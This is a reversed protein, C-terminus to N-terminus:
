GGACQRDAREPAPRRSPHPHPWAALTDPCERSDPRDPGGEATRPAAGPRRRLRTPAGPPTPKHQHRGTEPLAAAKGCRGPRSPAHCNRRGISGPHGHRVSFRPRLGGARLLRLCPRSAPSVNHAPAIESRLGCLSGRARTQKHVQRDISRPPSTRYFPASVKNGYSL